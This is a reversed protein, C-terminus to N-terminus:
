VQRGLPERPSGGSRERDIHIIRRCLVGRPHPSAQKENALEMFFDALVQTKIAPRLRFEIGFESLEVAWKVMRGSLEPNALVQEFPTTLVVVQHSQFYSRLKRIAVVLAFALKEIQSYKIEAGQLVKNVYYVPQLERGEQRVLVASIASKSVVLYVCLTEGMKPKTLLPLSVLYRKLDDFALQSTTTGNSKPHPLDMIAKIKKPNTEIGRESIMYGLFKGGRVGFTCKAPNLKMGFNKLVQFCEELDKIHDQEKPSKVLMDDIYVEM